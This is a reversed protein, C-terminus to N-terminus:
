CCSFLVAMSRHSHKEAAAVLMLHKSTAVRTPVPGCSTMTSTNKKSGTGEVFPARQLSSWLLKHVNLLQYGKLISSIISLSYTNWTEHQSKLVRGTPIVHQLESHMGDESEDMSLAAGGRQQGSSDPLFAALCVQAYQFGIDRPQHSLLVQLKGNPRTNFTKEASSQSQHRNSKKRSARTVM